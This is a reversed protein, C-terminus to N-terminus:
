VIVAEVQASAPALLQRDMLMPGHAAAIAPAAARTTIERNMPPFLVGVLTTLMQSYRGAGKGCRTLVM